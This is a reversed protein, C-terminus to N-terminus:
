FHISGTIAEGAFYKVDVDPDEKLKELIPKIDSTVVSYDLSYDLKTV